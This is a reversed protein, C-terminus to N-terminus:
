FIMILISFRLAAKAMRAILVFLRYTAKHFMIAEGNCGWFPITIAFYYEFSLIVDKDKQIRQVLNYAVMVRGYAPGLGM